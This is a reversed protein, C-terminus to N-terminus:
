ELNQRHLFIKLSAHLDDLSGNNSLRYDAIRGLADAEREIQANDYRKLNKRNQPERRSLRRRRVEANAMLHIHKYRLGYRERLYTSAGVQRIADIVYNGEPLYALMVSIFGGPGILSILQRGLKQLGPVSVPRKDAKLIGELLASTSLVSFGYKDSLYKAVVSKGSGRKGSLAIIMQNEEHYASM